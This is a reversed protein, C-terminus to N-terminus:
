FDIRCRVTFETDSSKKLPESLKATALLENNDNYLGETPFPDGEDLISGRTGLDADADLMRDESGTEAQAVGVGAQPHLELVPSWFGTACLMWAAVAATSLVHRAVRM